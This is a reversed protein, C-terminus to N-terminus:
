LCIQEKMHRVGSRRMGQRQLIRFHTQLISKVLEKESLYLEELYLLEKQM